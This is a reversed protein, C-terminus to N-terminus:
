HLAEKIQVYRITQINIPSKFYIYSYTGGPDSDIKEVAGLLITHRDSLIVPDGVQVTVNKPLKIYFNGGGRGEAIAGSSKANSKKSIVGASAAVAITSSTASSTGSTLEDNSVVLSSTTASTAIADVPHTELGVLVQEKNDSSSFLTVRSSKAYVESVRGIGYDSEAYVLDGVEVGQDEGADVILNDYPTKPPRIIVDALISKDAEYKRGLMSRLEINEAKLSEILAKDAEARILPAHSGFMQAVGSEIWVFLNTLPRSFVYFIGILIVVIIAGIIVDKNDRKRKRNDLRLYNM